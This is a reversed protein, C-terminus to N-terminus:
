YTNYNTKEFENDVFYIKFHNIRFHYHQSPSLLSVQSISIHNHGIHQLSSTSRQHDLLLSFASTTHDLNLYLYGVVQVLKIVKLYSLSTIYLSTYQM